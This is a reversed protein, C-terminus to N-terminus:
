KVVTPNSLKIFNEPEIVITPINGTSMPDIFTHSQNIINKPVDAKIVNTYPVPYNVSLGEGAKVANDFSNTFCKAEYSGEISRIITNDAVDLAEAESTARYLVVRDSEPYATKIASQLADDASSKVVNSVGNTTNTVSKGVM